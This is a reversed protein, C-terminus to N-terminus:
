DDSFFSWHQAILAFTQDVIIELDEEDLVNILASWVHFAQDCLHKDAMASQLCARIQATNSSAGVCSLIAYRLCLLVPVIGQLSWWKALQEWADSGNRFLIIRTRM